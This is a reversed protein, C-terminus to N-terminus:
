PSRWALPPTRRWDWVQIGLWALCLAGFPWLAIMYDYTKVTLLLAFMAVQAVTALAFAFLPDDKRARSRAAMMILAAPVGFFATWTGVRWLPAARM